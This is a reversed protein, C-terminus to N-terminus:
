EALSRPAGSRIWREVLSLEEHTLPEADGWWPPMEEGESAYGPVLRRLLVSRAPEYPEVRYRSPVSSAPRLVLEDYSLPSLELQGHCEACRQLLPAITEDFTVPPSAPADWHTLDVPAEVSFEHEMPVIVPQGSAGILETPDLSVTYLLGPLPPGSAYFRLERAVLSWEGRGRISVSGAEVTVVRSFNSDASLFGDFRVGVQGNTTLTQAPDGIWSATLVTLDRTDADDPDQVCGAQLLLTVALGTAKYSRSAAGSIHSFISMPAPENM